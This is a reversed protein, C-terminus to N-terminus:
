LVETEAIHQQAVQSDALLPPNSNKLLILNSIRGRIKWLDQASIHTLRRQLRRCDFVRMQALMACSKRDTFSIMYYYDGERLTSSLPVGLFSNSSWTRIILVPREFFGHKGDQENGINLGISCYWVEGDHVSYATEIQDLSKKLENWQDFNKEEMDEVPEM